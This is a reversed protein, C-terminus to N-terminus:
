KQLRINESTTEAIKGERRTYKRGGEEQNFGEGMEGNGMEM